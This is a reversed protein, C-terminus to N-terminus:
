EASFSPPTTIRTEDAEDALVDRLERSIRGNTEAAKSVNVYFGVGMIRTEEAKLHLYAKLKLGPTAKSESLAVGWGAKPSWLLDGVDHQIEQEKQDEKLADYLNELSDEIADVAAALRPAEHRFAVREHRREFASLLGKMRGADTSALLDRSQYVWRVALAREFRERPTSWPLAILAHLLAVWLTGDGMIREFDESRDEDSYRTAVASILGRQKGPLKERFLVDFVERAWAVVENTEVWGGRIGQLAVALPYAAAQQLQTASCSAAFESARLGDLFQRMQNRLNTKERESVAPQDDKGPELSHDDHDDESQSESPDEAEAGEDVEDLELEDVAVVTEFEFLARLVGLLSIGPHSSSHHSTASEEVEDLQRILADPDIPTANPEDNQEKGGTAKGRVLPDPFESPDTILAVGIRQLDALIRQRETRSRPVALDNLAEAIRRGRAAHRLEALDNVWHRKGIVEGSDLLVRIEKFREHPGIEIVSTEAVWTSNSDLSSCKLWSGGALIEVTSGAPPPILFSIRIEGTTREWAIESVTIPPGHQESSSPAHHERRLRVPELAPASFCELIESFDEPDASDFVAVIETNGNRSPPVLWAAASCNASGTVAAVGEPGRFWLLKAHLVNTAPEWLSQMEIPLTTLKGEVFSCRDEDVLVTARAIGFAEHCWRLLAGQDDTSGTLVKVEEFRRGAWREELLDSLSRAGRSVLLPTPSTPTTSSGLWPLQRARRLIDLQRAGSCWAECHDLLDALWSGDDSLEPGVEWGSALERNGGWGGSTLNGSGVWVLGGDEGLRVILKPHFTGTVHARELLYRRGLHRVQGEWRGMSEELRRNDAIVLVDGAGGAWLDPLVIREFFLANFDFTLFIAIPYSGTRCFERPNM